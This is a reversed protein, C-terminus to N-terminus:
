GKASFFQQYLEEVYPRRCKTKMEPPITKLYDAFDTLSIQHKELVFAAYNPHCRNYATLFYYPSYGWTKKEKIPMIHDNVLRLLQPVDYKPIFNNNYYNAALETQLNGAGRGMGLLSCDVVLRRGTLYEFVDVAVPLALNMNQHSHFGIIVHEPALNDLIKFYRRFDAPTMYGFSDVISIGLPNLKVLEHCLAAYEAMSYDITVMPQMFLKYGLENVREAYKLAKSIQHKYFVIRIGDVSKGDFPTFDGLGFQDVDVMALLMAGKRDAPLYEAIRAISDFHTSNGLYPKTNNLYGVEVFDLRADILTAIIDRITQEPFEGDTIYSGDRLTCDLLNYKDM